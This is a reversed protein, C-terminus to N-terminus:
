IRKISLLTKTDSSREVRVEDGAKWENFRGADLLFDSQGFAKNGLVIKKRRRSVIKTHIIEKHTAGTERFYDMILIVFFNLSFASITGAAINVLALTDDSYFVTGTNLEILVYIGAAALLLYLSGKLFIGRMLIKRVQEKEDASFEEQGTQRNKQQMSVFIIINSLRTAPFADKKVKSKCM